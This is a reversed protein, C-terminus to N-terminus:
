ARAEEHRDGRPAIAVPDPAPLTITVATGGAASSSLNITGSQLSVLRRCLALGTGTGSYEERTNLRRFLEFVDQAHDDVVGIGNDTVTIVVLEDVVRGTVSVTPVAATNFTLGNTLVHRLVTRMLAADAWALPLVDATVRGGREAIPAALEATVEAVLGSLDVVGPHAVTRGARSYSLLDDVMVQMRQAGDLLHALFAQGSPDLTAAYRTNMLTAFGGMIRVPEAFDHSIVYELRQLDVAATSDAATASAEPPRSTSPPPPTSRVPAPLPPETPPAELAPASVRRVTEALRGMESSKELYAVAGRAQAISILAPDSFGSLMVVPMEPARRQLEDLAELGGLRPMQIDLVVCDPRQADFMALAEAGDCAEAVSFGKGATMSYRALTRMASSDDAFLVRILPRSPEPGTATPPVTLTM